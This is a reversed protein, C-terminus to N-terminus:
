GDPAFRSLGVATVIWVEGDPGFAISDVFSSSLGDGTTYENWNEGDHVNLSADTGVWLREDPGVALTTVGIPQHDDLPSPVDLMEWEGERYAFLSSGGAWITGDPAAAVANFYVDESDPRHIVWSDGDFSALGQSALTVWVVGSGDIAIAEIIETAGIDDSTYTTWVGDRVRHIPEGPAGTGIWADGNDAVAIDNVHVDGIETYIQWSTGDFYSVGYLGATGLWVDGNPGTAVAWLRDDALGDETTYSTWTTGDYSVAGGPDTALWVTGDAAVDVNTPHAPLDSPLEFHELRGDAYRYIDDTDTGIWIGDEEALLSTVLVGESLGIGDVLVWYEGELRYVAGQDTGAWLQGDPGVSLAVVASGPLGDGVNTTVGDVTRAVGSEEGSYGYWAAVDPTFAFNSTVYVGNVDDVVTWQGDAMTALYGTRAGEGEVGGEALWLTGDPAESLSVVWDVPQGAVEDIAEWKGQDLRAIGHTSGVWVAGDNSVTINDVTAYLFGL